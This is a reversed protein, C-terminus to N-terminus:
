LGLRVVTRAFRKLDFKRLEHSIAKALEAHVGHAFELAHHFERHWRAFKRREAAYFSVDAACRINDLFDACKILRVELPAHRLIDLKEIKHREKEAETEREVVKRTLAQVFNAVRRGFRKQISTLRVRCDEVVDHLLAAVVMDADWTGVITLLIRAVRVPHIIYASGEDRRQGKHALQAFRLAALIKKSDDPGFNQTILNRLEKKQYRADHFRNSMVM